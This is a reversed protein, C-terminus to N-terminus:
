DQLLLKVTEKDSPEVIRSSEVLSPKSGHLFVFYVLSMLVTGSVLGVVVGYVKIHQVDPYEKIAIEYSILTIIAIIFICLLLFYWFNM